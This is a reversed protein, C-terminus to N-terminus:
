RDLGHHALLGNRTNSGLLRGGIFGSSHEGPADMVQIHGLFVASSYIFSRVRLADSFNWHWRTRM